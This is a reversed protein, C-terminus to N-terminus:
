IDEEERVVGEGHRGHSGTLFVALSVMKRNRPSKFLNNSNPESDVLFLSQSKETTSMVHRHRKSTQVM